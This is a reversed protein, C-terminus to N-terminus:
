GDIHGTAEGAAWCVLFWASLPLALVNDLGLGRRRALTQVIRGLMVAPVLPACAVRLLRHGASSRPRAAHAFRRGHVFRQRSFGALSYSGAHHVRMQPDLWVTHGNARLARHVEVEWFGERAIAPLLPALASLKYAGNDAAIEAAAGEVAPPLYPAYRVLHIARDVLTAQAALEIVGGIAAHPKAHARIVAALWDPAPRCATTTIAVVRGRARNLAAGWLEPVSTADPIEVASAWASSRLQRAVGTDVNTLAVLVEAHASAVQPAIADLWPGLTGGVNVGAAIVTLDPDSV